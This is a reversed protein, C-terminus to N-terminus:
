LSIIDKIAILIALALMIALGVFNITGEIERKMPKRRIAEILYLFLHGGDLGPIPLLNMVGLNMSIVTVLYFVNLWDTKAVDSITKTVGVPGSVTQMGYRGSFLGFLSDYIMKVTSVSRYWTHKLVTGVGFSEEAYVRFDMSGFTAGSDAFSPVIVNELVVKEGNRLVTLKLPAYGQHMIEYSLEHATHVRTGNVKIIEDEIQLGASESLSGDFYAELMNSNLVVNELKVHLVDSGDENLRQVVLTFTGNEKQAVAQKFQGFSDLSVGDLGVVYDGKLLGDVSEEATYSVHFNGVTTTGVNWKGSAIVVVLMMLFGLLINMFPGALSILVRKWLKQNRLGESPDPKEEEATEVNDAVGKQELDDDYMMVYGGLPLIRLSYMTGNKKSKWSFLKPGMGISFEMIRVGCLRAVLFHGLEHVFVLVGFIFIALLIYLFDM